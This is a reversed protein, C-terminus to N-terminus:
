LFFTKDKENKKKSKNKIIIMSSFLFLARTKNKARCFLFVFMGVEMLWGLDLGEIEEDLTNSLEYTDKDLDSSVNMSMMALSDLTEGTMNLSDTTGGLPLDDLMKKKPSRARGGGAGVGRGHHHHSHNHGQKKHHRGPSGASGAGPIKKHNEPKVENENDM